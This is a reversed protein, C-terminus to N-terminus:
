GTSALGIVFHAGIIGIAFRRMCSPYMSISLRTAVQEQREDQALWGALSPYQNTRYFAFVEPNIVVRLDKTHGAQANVILLGSRSEIGGFKGGHRTVTTRHTKQGCFQICFVM